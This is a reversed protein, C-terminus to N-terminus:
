FILKCWCIIDRFFLFHNLINYILLHFGKIEDIILTEDDYIKMLVDVLCNPEANKDFNKKKKQIMESIFKEHIKMSKLFEKNRWSEPYKKYIPNTSVRM